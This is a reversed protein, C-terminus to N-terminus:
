FRFAKKFFLDVLVCIPKVIMFSRCWLIIYHRVTANCHNREPFLEPLVRFQRCTWFSLLKGWYRLVENKNM